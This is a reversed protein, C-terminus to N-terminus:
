KNEEGCLVDRIIRKWRSDKRRPQACVARVELSMGGEEAIMLSKMMMMMMLIMILSLM